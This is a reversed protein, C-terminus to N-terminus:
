YKKKLNFIILLLMIFVCAYVFLDGIVYYITKSNNLSIDAVLFTQKFIDSSKAVARGKHDIIESPGTNSSILVATGNEVARLNSALNHQTSAITEGFWNDNVLDVILNTDQWVGRRVTSSFVNEWCIIPTMVASSSIFQTTADGPEMEVIKPVLWEPWKIWNKLPTTESFPVLRRKRYVHFSDDGNRFFVAQNYHSQKAEGGDSAKSFKESETYGFVLDIGNGQVYNRVQQIVPNNRGEGRVAGEPWIVLDPKYELASNTIEFLRKVRHAPHQEEVAPVRLFSPQIVAVRVQPLDETNDLSMVYGFSIVFLILVFGIVKRTNSYFKWFFIECNVWVVFFSIGYEGFVSAWQLLPINETQTHALTNWPFALFGINSAIFELVVWLSAFCFSLLGSVNKQHFLKSAIWGWLTIPLSVISVLIAGHPFFKFSEVSYIWSTSVFEYLFGIVFFLILVHTSRLIRILYILPIFAIFALPWFGYPPHLCILLFLSILSLGIHFLRVSKSNTSALQQIGNQM